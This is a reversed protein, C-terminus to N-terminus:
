IIWIILVGLYDKVFLCHNGFCLIPTLHHIELEKLKGSGFSGSFCFADKPWNGVWDPFSISVLTAGLFAQFVERRKEKCVDGVVIKHHWSFPTHPSPVFQEEGEEYVPFDKGGWFTRWGERGLSRGPFAQACTLYPAWCWLLPCHRANIRFPESAGELALGPVWHSCETAGCPLYIVRLFFAHGMLICKVVM